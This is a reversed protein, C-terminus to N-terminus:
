LMLLMAIAMGIMIVNEIFTAETMPLNLATGLCACQIEKKDLLTKTVGVTTIGLIVITAVLATSVNWRLLFMLGLGLELFPYVLGYQKIRKALPDYMAFSQAFERIDLIKFFSFVIYFLGMFTLMMEKFDWANRYLLISTISIYGLILFLPKLQSWKSVSQMSTQSGLVEKVDSELSPKLAVTYKSSLIKRLIAIDLYRNTTIYAEERELSVRANTVGELNTLTKEISSRCGNCTMGKISYTTEM